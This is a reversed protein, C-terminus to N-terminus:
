KQGIESFRSAFWKLLSNYFTSVDIKKRFNLSSFLRLMNQEPYQFIFKIVM